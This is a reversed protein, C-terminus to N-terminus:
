TTPEWYCDDRLTEVTGDPHAIAVLEGDFASFEDTDAHDLEAIALRRTDGADHGYVMHPQGTEAARRTARTLHSTTM